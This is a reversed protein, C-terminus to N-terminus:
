FSGATAPIPTSSRWCWLVLALWVGGVGIMAAFGALVALWSADHASPLVMWASDLVRAFLVISAIAVLTRPNQKVARFLLAFLPLLFHLVMLVVAVIAWGGRMRPAYWAAHHPLNGNWVIFFQSYAIYTHLVVFALLLTGLDNLRARPLPPAGELTAFGAALIIFVALATLAQGIVVYFGFVSSYFDRELTLVWDIGAFSVTIFYIIVGVASFAQLLRGPERHHRARRRTLISLALGGVVWLGLFVVARIYFFSERLYWARFAYEPQDPFARTAWPYLHRVGLAIPLFAVIILPLSAVAADVPQRISWGWRGGTLHHLMLLGAAGLPLGSWLLFGCVYGYYFANPQYLAVAVAGALGGFGALLLYRISSAKLSDASATRM